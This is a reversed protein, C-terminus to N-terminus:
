NLSVKLKQPRDNDIPPCRECAYKFLITFSPVGDPPIIKLTTGDFYSGMHLMDFRKRRTMPEGPPMTTGEPEEAFRCGDCIQIWVQGHEAQANGVNKATFSLRQGPVAPWFGFQFKAQAPVRTPFKVVPAPVNITPITTPRETNAEIKDLKDSLGFSRYTQVGALLIVAVCCGAFVAKQKQRQKQRLDNLSVKFAKWGLYVGLTAQALGIGLDIYKGSDMEAGQSDSMVGKRRVCDRANRM